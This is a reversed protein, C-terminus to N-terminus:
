KPANMRVTRWEGNSIRYWSSGGIERNNVNFGGWMATPSKWWNGGVYAIVNGSGRASAEASCNKAGAPVTARKTWWHLVRNSPVHYKVTGDSTYTTAVDEHYDNNGFWPDKLYTGAGIRNVGSDVTQRGKGPVECILQFSSIEITGNGSDTTIAGGVPTAANWGDPIQRHHHWEVRFWEPVVNPVQDASLVNNATQAISPIATAATTVALALFLSTRKNMTIERQKRLNIAM